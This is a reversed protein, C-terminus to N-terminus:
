DFTRYFVLLVLKTDPVMIIALCPQDYPFSMRKRIFGGGLATRRDTRVDRENGNGDPAARPSFFVTGLTRM